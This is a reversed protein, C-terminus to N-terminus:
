KCYKEYPYHLNNPLHRHLRVKNRRLIAQIRTHIFGTLYAPRESAGADEQIYVMIYDVLHKIEHAVDDDCIANTHFFLAFHKDNRACCARFGELPLTFFKSQKWAKVADKAVVLEVYVNYLPIKFKSKLRINSM